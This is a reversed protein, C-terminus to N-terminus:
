EFLKKREGVSEMGGNWWCSWPLLTSVTDWSGTYKVVFGTIIPCPIGPLDLRWHEDFGRARWRVKPGIDLHNIGM